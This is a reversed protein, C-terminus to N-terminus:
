SARRGMVKTRDPVTRLAAASVAGSRTSRRVCTRSRTATRPERGDGVLGRRHSEVDTMGPLQPAGVGVVVGPITSPRAAEAVAGASWLAERRDIDFCDFAGATAM